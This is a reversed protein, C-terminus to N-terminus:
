CGSAEMKRGTGCDMNMWLRPSTKAQATLEDLVAQSVVM